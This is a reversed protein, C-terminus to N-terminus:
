KAIKEPQMQEPRKRLSEFNKQTISKAMYNMEDAMDDDDPNSFSGDSSAIRKLSTNKM